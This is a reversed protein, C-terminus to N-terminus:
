EQTHIYIYIHTCMMYYGGIKSSSRYTPRSKPLYKNVFQVKFAAASRGLESRSQITRGHVTVVLHLGPRWCYPTTQCDSVNCLRESYTASWRAETPKECCSKSHTRNPLLIWYIVQFGIIYSEDWPTVTGHNSQHDFCQPFGQLCQSKFPSQFRLLAYSCFGM